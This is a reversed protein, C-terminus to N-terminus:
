EESNKFEDKFITKAIQPVEPYVKDIYEAVAATIIDGQNVGHILKATKLLITTQPSCSICVQVFNEKKKRPKSTEQQNQTTNEVSKKKPEEKKSTTKKVEEKKPKEEQTVTENIEEKPEELPSGTDIVSTDFRPSVNEPVSVKKNASRLRNERAM